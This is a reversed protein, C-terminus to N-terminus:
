IASRKKKSVFQFAKVIAVVIVFVLLIDLLRNLVISRTNSVPSCERDSFGLLANAFLSGMIKKLGQNKYDVISIRTTYKGSDGLPAITAEYATKEENVRLMFSFTKNPNLPHQLTVVISKLVEPVKRYDLSVTLNKTGDISVSDDGMGQIKKGDQIFNFDQFVLAGILPHVKESSPIQEIVDIEEPAEGPLLIKADAVLGSSYSNNSKVFLSYYYRVGPIKDKDTFVEDRGEYITEGDYPDSPYFSESRVLRVEDFQNLPPNAWKLVISDELPVAVFNSPNAPPTEFDTTVFSITLYGIAGMGDLGSIRAFYQTGSDLYSLTASHDSVYLTEQVVGENYDTNKGWSLTGLTPVNTKWSIRANSGQTEIKVDYILPQRQSATGGGSGQTSLALTTVGIASSQLSENNAADVASVTYSYLTVPTLGTDSYSTGVSTGVFVNDRYIRYGTVSVNDTSAVWSLNIQSSSVAVGSLGTPQSPATIDAGGTVSLNIEFQDQVAYTIPLSSVCFFCLVLTSVILTRLISKM